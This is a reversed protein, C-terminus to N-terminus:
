FLTVVTDNFYTTSLERGVVKTTENESLTVCLAKLEDDSTGYVGIVYQECYDNDETQAGFDVDTVVRFSDNDNRGTAMLPHELDHGREYLLSAVEGADNFPTSDTSLIKFIMIDGSEEFTADSGTCINHEYLHFGLKQITVAGDNLKASTVASDVIKNTTISADEVKATNIAGDPINQREINPYIEVSTDNKKKLTEYVKSM